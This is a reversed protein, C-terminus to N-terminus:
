KSVPDHILFVEELSHPVKRSTSKHSLKWPKKSTTKTGCIKETTWKTTLPITFSTNNKDAASASSEGAGFNFLERSQGRRGAGRTGSFLRGRKQTISPQQNEDM